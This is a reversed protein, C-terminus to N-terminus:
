HAQLTDAGQASKALSRFERRQQQVAPVDPFAAAIYEYETAAAEYKHEQRLGVALNYRPNIATEDLQIAARFEALAEPLRGVARLAMGLVDHAEPERPALVIAARAAGVAEEPKLRSMLIVALNLQAEPDAPDRSLRHRLLAEQLVRRRDGRGEPLVQLWLHGMEDTAENGGAVRRPPVNPNHSNTASNDYEFRMSIISHAPLSVPKTYRYVGQWKLDWHLIRILWQRSGDPLTAYAELQKGLYHAHPYVALLQVSEPLEFDDRVQFSSVGAPIDLADDNEMELLLPFETPAEDTFYIGIQPQIQEDKGTPHLHTNLVLLNGPDLRWSLGGPEVEPLSGPKWFLFHSDPDFASRSISVDMGPFGGGSSKELRRVTGIRDLLLNAHHLAKSSGPRIEIARVFRSRSLNPAFVFNWFLDPGEAPAAFPRSSRLILDPTGLQWESPFLPSPPESSQPGEPAGAGVWRGITQIQADSLRPSDRFEGFGPEPLWPPMYRTATVAGIDHAHKRADGYSLLSFPGPQGPRHCPACKSYLIPAVDKAFSPVGTDQAKMGGVTLILAVTFNLFQNM